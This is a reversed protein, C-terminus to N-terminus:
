LPQVFELENLSVKSTFIGYNVTAKTKEIKDLTGIAKGDKM